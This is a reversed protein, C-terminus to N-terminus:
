NGYILNELNKILLYSPKIFYTGTNNKNDFARLFLYFIGGFHTNYNYNKLKKKLYCHLVLSYIQYQIDYRYKIIEKKINKSNYYSSDPGLWNSKYEIIYYKKKWLFILDISGNLIGFFNKYFINSCKKSIPDFKKIILNFKKINIKKKIPIIFKTEKQHEKKRIKELSLNENNLPFKLFINIWLYLKKILINSFSLFNTKKLIKKTKKTKFFKIKKFVDHLYIGFEKGLPFSHLNIQSTKKNYNIKNIFNEKKINIINKKLQNYKIIKSFSTNTWSYQKIKKNFFFINKKKRKKKKFFKKKVKNSKKIEILGPIQLDYLNKKFNKFKKKKGKQILYGLCNKHFNTYKENKKNKIVALGICCHIISRTIAVYLLRIDESLREKELSIINKKENKLNVIKKLTKKCYIIQNKKKQFSSFFPIWIIPYELGKSKYITIIKIFKKDNINKNQILNKSKNKEINKKLIKKRLWITLLFKNKISKNKEELIECLQIINYININNIKLKINKKQFCFDFIIKKFMFFINKKKWILYYKKLKKILSSYTKKKNNISYIDYINKSFIKTMLLKQLKLINSLDSLSEIIFLIEKAEKTQFINKKESTYITKIGYKKFEKKIINAEYKNKVLIAIDTNKISRKKKNKFIIFSKKTSKNSLLNNISYACMKSIWTFYENKNITKKNKFIFKLAPQTINNIVLKNKNNKKNALSPQFNIKKFIFPNKTKSFLTNISKTMNISSRFNKKLFFCKQIKKKYKLYLFINSNRFSYISQKPDGILILSKKKKKKYIKYFINFQYNDIDQCEDIMSITYKKLINKKYNIKKKKIEKWMITNLDNFELGKKMKKKKKILKPIKKLALYIFYKFFLKYYFFIKKIYLFFLYEKKKKIKKLIFHKLIKPVSYKITKKESWIQIKKCWIKIKKKNNKKKNLYIKKILFKIKKKDIKWTKKAKNILKIILNYKKILSSKKKFDHKIKIKIQSIWIYIHKFLELPNKWKKFILKIIEINQYYVYKRWFDKTAEFQIKKINTIINQYIKKKCLFKQEILIKRFFSHITYINIQDINKKAKKLLKSIKKFDKIEKKFDKLDKVYYNKNISMYYLQCIKKYLREKLENKATETFTVILIKKIPIPSSYSKKIGINLILRLYFIIISFTKGTGASAEILTIGFHPIEKTNLPIYQM